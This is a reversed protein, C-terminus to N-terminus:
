RQLFFNAVRKLEQLVPAYEETFKKFHLIQISTALFPHLRKCCNFLKQKGNLLGRVSGSVLVDSNSLVEKAGSSDLIYGLSAFYAM